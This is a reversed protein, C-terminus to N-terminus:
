DYPMPVSLWPIHRCIQKFDESSYLCYGELFNQLIWEATFKIIQCICCINALLLPIYSLTLCMDFVCQYRQTNDPVVEHDSSIKDM